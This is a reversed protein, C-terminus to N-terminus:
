QCRFEKAMESKPPRLAAIILKTLQVPLEIAIKVCSHVLWDAAGNELKKKRKEDVYDWVSWYGKELL